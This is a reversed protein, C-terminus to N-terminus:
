FLEPNCLVRRLHELLASIADQESEFDQCQVAKRDHMLRFIFRDDYPRLMRQVYYNGRITRCSFVKYVGDNNIFGKHLM